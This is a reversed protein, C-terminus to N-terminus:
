FFTEAQQRQGAEITERIGRELSYEPKFGFDEKAKECSYLWSTQTLARWAGAAFTNKSLGTKKLLVLFRVSMEILFEPLPLFLRGQIIEKEMVSIIEHWAYLTGDTLYYVQGATKPSLACQIIGRVLDKVYIMSTVAERKRLRPVIRKKLLTIFLETEKQRSGYVNPPRIITSPLRDWVAQVEKEGLLKTRGYESVPSCPRSEDACYGKESPGAAAISSVYVLRQINPNAHLCAHVLNRTLLHNVRKYAARSSTRILGALHFVHSRGRVSRELFAADEMNGRLIVIYKKGLFDTRSSERVACAVDWGEDALALALYRGIFGSAGTVLAKRQM